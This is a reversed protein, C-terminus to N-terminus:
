PGTSRPTSASLPQPLSGRGGRAAGSELLVSYLHNLDRASLRALPRRGLYPVIHNRVHNEYGAYTTARVTKEITPLWM